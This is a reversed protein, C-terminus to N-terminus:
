WVVVNVFHNEGHCVHIHYYLFFGLPLKQVAKLVALLETSVLLSFPSIFINM